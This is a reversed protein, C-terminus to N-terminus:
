RIAPRSPPRSSAGRVPSQPGPGRELVLPGSHGRLDDDPHPPSRLEGDAQLLAPLAGLGAKWARRRSGLAPLGAPQRAPLDHRQHLQLRGAGQRPRPRDAPREHPTRPRIRIALRLVQQREPLDPGGADPHVPGVPLRQPRSGPGASHAKGDAVAQRALVSGASGGGVIVYDYSENTMLYIEKPRPRSDTNFRRPHTRNLRAPTGHGPGGAAGGHRNRRDPHRLLRNGRRRRRFRRPPALRLRGAAERTYGYAASTVYGAAEGNFYVPEKGLVVSTGDDVTLCRLQMAAPQARREALAEAGVFSDKNKAISFGLGAQYPEHEPTMDTGWLRYGKELRLSNFAGRGAAIIDQEQRLRRVPVRGHQAGSCPVVPALPAPWARRHLSHAPLPTASTTTSSSTNPSTSAACRWSAPCPTSSEVASPAPLPSSSRRRRSGPHQRPQGADSASRTREQLENSLQLTM